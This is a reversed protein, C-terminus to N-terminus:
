TLQNNSWPHVGFKKYDRQDTKTASRETKLAMYYNYDKKKFVAEMIKRSFHASGILFHNILITRNLTMGALSNIHTAQPAKIRCPVKIKEQRVDKAPNFSCFM